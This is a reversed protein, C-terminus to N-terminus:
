KKPAVSVALAETFTAEIKDGKAVRKFQEPDKLKLEVTRRPGKVTLTQTAADIGVVEGVVTVRRGAIAGPKAGAPAAAGGAQETRGVVANGGKKLELVLSEVYTLDVQDGVKLQDFNRVEPGAVVTHERGGPGKLTVSRTKPDIATIAASASVTQAVGAVGPGVAAAGQATQASALPVSAVGVGLVVAAVIGKM